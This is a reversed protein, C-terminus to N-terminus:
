CRKRRSSLARQEEAQMTEIFALVKDATALTPSRGRRLNLVFGADGIAQRGFETAKWGSAALFAEVRAAFQESFTRAL